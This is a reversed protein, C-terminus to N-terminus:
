QKRQVPSTVESPIETLSIKYLYVSILISSTLCISLCLTNRRRIRKEEQVASVFTSTCACPLSTVSAFPTCFISISLNTVFIRTSFPFMSNFAGGLWLAAPLNSRIKKRQYSNIKILISHIM